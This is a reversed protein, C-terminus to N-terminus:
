GSSSTPTTEGRGPLETGASTFDPAPHVISLESPDCVCPLGGERLFHNDKLVMFLGSGLRRVQKETLGVVFLDDVAHILEHFLTWWAADEGGGVYVQIERIPVDRWQGHYTRPDIFTVLKYQFPGVKLEEM